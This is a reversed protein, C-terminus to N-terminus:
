QMCYQPVTSSKSKHELIFKNVDAENDLDLKVVSVGLKSLAQVQEDARVAAYINTKEFIPQARSILTALVSGGSISILALSPPTQPWSPVM